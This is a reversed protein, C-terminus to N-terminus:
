RQEIPPWYIMSVNGNNCFKKKYRINKNTKSQWSKLSTLKFIFFNVIFKLHQYSKHMKKHTLYMRVFNDNFKSHSQLNQVQKKDGLYFHNFIVPFFFNIIVYPYQSNTVGYIISCM